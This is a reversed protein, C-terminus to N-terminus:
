VELSPRNYLYLWNLRHNERNTPNSRYISYKALIWGFRIHQTWAHSACSRGCYQRIHKLNKENEIKAYRWALSSPYSSQPTVELEALIM